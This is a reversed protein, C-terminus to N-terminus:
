YIFYAHQIAVLVQIRVESNVCLALHSQAGLVWNQPLCSVPDGLELNLSLGQRLPILCFALSYSKGCGGRVEAGMCM